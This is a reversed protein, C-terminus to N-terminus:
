CYVKPKEEKIFEISLIKKGDKHLLGHKIANEVIPQILMPPVMIDTCNTINISYEFDGDLFRLKELELYTEILDTEEEIEIFEKDSFNLTQRVLKSFKIIYSYSNDIDEKLILDQISNIANFIFHPNM